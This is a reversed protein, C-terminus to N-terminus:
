KKTLRPRQAISFGVTCQYVFEAQVSHRSGARQHAAHAADAM